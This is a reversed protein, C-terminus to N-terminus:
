PRLAFAIWAVAVALLITAVATLTASSVGALALIALCVAGIAALLLAPQLASGGRHSDNRLERQDLEDHVPRQDVEHRREAQALEHREAQARRDMNTTLGSLSVQPQNWPLTDEPQDSPWALWFGSSMVAVVDGSPTRVEWAPVLAPDASEEAESLPKAEIVLRRGDAFAIVLDPETSEVRLSRVTAGELAHALTAVPDSQESGRLDPRAGIPDELRWDSSEPSVEWREALDPDGFELEAVAPYSPAVARLPGAASSLARRLRDLDRESEIRHIETRDTM